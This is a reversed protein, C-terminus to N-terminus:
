MVRYKRGREKARDCLHQVLRHYEEKINDVVFNVLSTFLDWIIVLKPSRKKYFTHDDSYFNELEMYFAEFEEEDYNSTSAYDVFIILAPM